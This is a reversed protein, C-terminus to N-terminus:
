DIIIDFYDVIPLCGIVVLEAPPTPLIGYYYRIAGTGWKFDDESLNWQIFWGSRGVTSPDNGIEKLREKMRARFVEVKPKFKVEVDGKGAM